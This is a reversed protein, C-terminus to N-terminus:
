FNHTIKASSSVISIATFSQYLNQCQLSAYHCVLLMIVHYVSAYSHSDLVVVLVTQGTTCESTDVCEVSDFSLIHNHISDCKGCATGSRHSSCQNQREPSLWYFGSTTECCTFQLLKQSLTIYQQKVM